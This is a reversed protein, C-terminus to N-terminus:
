PTFVTFDTYGSAAGCYWVSTDPAHAVPWGREFREVLDPNAIYARGFAIM